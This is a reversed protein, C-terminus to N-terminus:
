ANSPDPLTCRESKKVSEVQNAMHNEQRVRQQEKDPHADFDEQFIEQWVRTRRSLEGAVKVKRGEQVERRQEHYM